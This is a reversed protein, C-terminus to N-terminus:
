YFTLIARFDCIFSVGRAQTIACHARDREPGGLREGIRWALPQPAAGAWACRRRQVHNMDTVDHIGYATLMQPCELLVDTQAILLRRTVRTASTGPTPNAVAWTPGRGRCCFNPGSVPGFGQLRNLGGNVNM